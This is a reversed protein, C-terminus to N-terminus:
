VIDKDSSVLVDETLLQKVQMDRILRDVKQSYVIAQNPLLIQDILMVEFDQLSINYRLQSM